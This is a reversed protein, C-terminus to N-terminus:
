FYEVIRDGLEGSCPKMPIIKEKGGQYKLVTRYYGYEKPLRNATITSLQFSMESLRYPGEYHKDIRQM